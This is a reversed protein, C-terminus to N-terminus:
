GLVSNRPRRASTRYNQAKELIVTDLLGHNHLIRYAFDYWTMPEGDTFHHLGYNVSRSVILKLLHHALHVAKTPCGIQEDTIKLHEKKKAKKLITMYFNNGHDSYLWSTRIIFFSELIQQVYKEGALKSKGYENIPNPIDETTYPEDQEGDFVYDTSIHILVTKNKACALAINRVGIANIAFAMETDQEAKEVNTYAACNICYDFDGESFAIDVKKADTIDLEKSSRFVFNLEPYSGSVEQLSKGLQGKSGTVLVRKM